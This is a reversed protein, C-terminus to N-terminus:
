AVDRHKYAKPTSGEAVGEGRARRPTSGGVRPTAMPTTRLTARPTKVLTRPTARPTAGDKSSVARRSVESREEGGRRKRLTQRAEHLSQTSLVHPTGPKVAVGGSSPGFVAGGARPRVAQRISDRDHPAWYKKRAAAARLGSTVDTGVSSLFASVTQAKAAAEEIKTKAALDAAAEPTDTLPRRRRGDNQPPFLRLMTKELPEHQDLHAAQEQLISSQGPEFGQRLERSLQIAAKRCSAEELLFLVSPTLNSAPLSWATEPSPAVHEKRLEARWAAETNKDDHKLLRAKSPSMTSAEAASSKSPSSDTPAVASALPGEDSYLESRGLARMAANHLHRGLYSVYAEAAVEASAGGAPVWRKGLTGQHIEAHEGLKAQLRTPSTSEELSTTIRELRVTMKEVREAAAADRASTLITAGDQQMLSLRESTREDLYEQARMASPKPHKFCATHYAQECDPDGRYPYRLDAIFDQSQKMDIVKGRRDNNPGGGAAQFDIDLSMDGWHREVRRHAPETISLPLGHAMSRELIQDDQNKYTGRRKPKATNSTAKPTAKPAFRSPSKSDSKTKSAGDAAAPPQSSSQQPRNAGVLSTSADELVEVGGIVARKSARSATMHVLTSSSPQSAAEDELVLVELELPADGDCAAEHQQEVEVEDESGVDLDDESGVSDVSAQVAVVEAFEEDGAVELAMKSSWTSSDPFVPAIQADPAHMCMPEHSEVEALTGGFDCFECEHREPAPRDDAVLAPLETDPTRPRTFSPSTPASAVPAIATAAPSNAEHPNEMFNGTTSILSASRPEGVNMYVPRVVGNIKM